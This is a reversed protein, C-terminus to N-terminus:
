EPRTETEPLPGTLPGAAAAARPDRLSWPDENKPQARNAVMRYKQGAGRGVYIQAYEDATASIAGPASLAAVTAAVEAREAEEQAQAAAYPDYGSYANAYCTALIETMNVPQKEEAPAASEEGEAGEEDDDQAAAAEPHEYHHAGSYDGRMSPYGYGFSATAGEGEGAEAGDTRAVDGRSYEGGRISYDEYGSYGSYAAYAAYAATYAHYQEQEQATMGETPDSSEAAPWARGTAALTAEHEEDAARM